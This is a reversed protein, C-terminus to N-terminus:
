IGESEEKHKVPIQIEFLNSVGGKELGEKINVLRIEGIQTYGNLRIYKLMEKYTTLFCQENEECYSSLVFIPKETSRKVKVSENIEGEILQVYKVKIGEDTSEDSNLAIYSYPHIPKKYNPNLKKFEQRASETFTNIEEISNISGDFTYVDISPINKIIIKYNRDEEKLLYDIKTLQIKENLINDEILKKRENLIAKENKNELVKRIDEISLGVERLSLIKSLTDFQDDDYYRCKGDYLRPILLGEEEYYRLTRKTTNAILAFVGIKYMHKGRRM